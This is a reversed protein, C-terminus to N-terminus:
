LTGGMQTWGAWGTALYRTVAVDGGSDLIAVEPTGSPSLWAAPVASGASGLSTWETWSASGAAQQVCYGVQGGSLESFVAVAGGPWATLAPSGELTANGPPGPEAAWGSGPRAQWAVDLAGASTQAAVETQGDGASVVAPIGTLGTFGAISQWPQWGDADVAFGLTGTATVCFVEVPGGPATFAAPSGACSGGIGTWQTWGANDNPAQQSTTEVTGGQGTVFVSIAGSRGLTASPDGRAGDPLGTGVSSGWQWGGQGGPQEWSNVVAGAADLAFVTLAGDQEATVSPNSTLNAPSDGVEQTSSWAASGPSQQYAHKLVGAADTAFWEASGSANIGLAIRSLPFPPLPSSPPQSGAQGGLDVNLQDDDVNLTSGGWTENHGGRYQHLRQHDTWMDAPMYSSSTTAVDDWDAYHIVDPEVMLGQASVLDSINSFSEYVGSQYGDANLEADWASLFAIVESGCGDYAEMDYIIPTGQPIGLNQAQQAADDAAQSGEAAAQSAVIPADGFADVCSAQPGVYFPFYHWGQRQIQNIWKGTLNAQACARNVGGIYIGVARYPSVLWHKMVTASPAACTDFGPGTYVGQQTAAPIAAPRVSVAGPHRPRGTLAISAQVTRILALDSGYSLSVEVGAAPLIDIITHTVMSDPNTLAAVKGLRIHRTAARLDPSADNVPLLQVAETKGGLEDAPCAPDPGPTGLYVAHRNLRPCDAPHRALNFVPWSAPVRVSVGAFAM